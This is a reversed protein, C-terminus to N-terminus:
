GSWIWSRPRTWQPLMEGCVGCRSLPECGGPLSIANPADTSESKTNPHVAVNGARALVECGQHTVKQKQRVRYGRQRAAHRAAGRRTSQYRAGARRLSERRRIASCKRGCYINGHDCRQCIRVQVGCRHCSYLRYLGQQLAGLAGEWLCQVAGPLPLCLPEAFRRKWASLVSPGPIVGIV